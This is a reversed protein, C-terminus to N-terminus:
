NKPVDKQHPIDKLDTATDVFIIGNLHDTEHQFIQALLGSVGMQFKQGQEDYAQIIVKESREVQGYLWRISLCGEEMQHKKKSFKIIKPNIFITHLPPKKHLLELTRESVVFIRLNIGIQPAAMAVGDEEGTLIRKLKVLLTQIKKSGIEKIPVEQSMQRLALAERQLTKTSM